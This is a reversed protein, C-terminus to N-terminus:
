AEDAGEEAELMELFRNVQDMGYVPIRVLAGKNHTRGHRFGLQRLLTMIRKAEAETYASFRIEVGKKYTQADERAVREPNPWRMHGNRRYYAVLERAAERADSHKTM